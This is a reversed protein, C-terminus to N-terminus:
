ADLGGTTNRHQLHHLYPPRHLMRVQERLAVFRPADGDRPDAIFTLRHM